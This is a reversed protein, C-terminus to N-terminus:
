KAPEPTADVAQEVDEANVVIVDDDQGAMDNASADQKSLQGVILPLLETGAPM